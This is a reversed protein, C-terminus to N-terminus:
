AEGGKLAEAYAHLEDLAADIDGLTQNIDQNYECDIIAGETDTSLTTTPSASEVGDVSGDINVPYEKDNAFVKVTSLDSVCPAYATAETGLELQTASLDVYVSKGSEQHFFVGEGGHLVVTRSVGAIFSGLTETVVSGTSTKKQVFVSGRAGDETYVKITLAYVDSDDGPIEYVDYPAYASAFEKSGQVNLCEVSNYVVRGLAGVWRSPDFLNKSRVKVDLTHTLPSIDALSIASGSKKGRLANAHDEAVKEGIEREADKIKEELKAEREDLDKGMDRIAKQFVAESVLGGVLDSINVEVERNELAEDETKIKLRLIGDAYTAGIFLSELPLDVIGESLVKGASNKLSLTMVYTSRDISVEVRSGLLLLDQQGVSQKDQLNEIEEENTSLRKTINNIAEQLRNNSTNGIPYNVLIYAAAFSQFYNVFDGLNNLTIANGTFTTVKTTPIPLYRAAEDSSLADQLNNIKDALFTALKDFWLQLEVASLGSEGYQAIANPRAALAQVGRSKIQQPSINKFKKTESM